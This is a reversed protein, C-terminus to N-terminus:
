ALSRGKSTIKVLNNAILLPEVRAKITEADIRLLGAITTISASGGLSRLAELYSGAIPDIGEVIGFINKLLEKFETITSPFKSYKFYIELNRVLGLIVRPNHGGSKIIYMLYKRDYKISTNILIIEMLEADTYPVFVFGSNNCRNIVPEPLGAFENTAIVIVYRRSDMIPYLMEFNSITHAEDILHVRYSVDFDDISGLSIQYDTDALYQCILKAMYTKGQGSAACLLFNDGVDSEYLAPLLFKLQSM